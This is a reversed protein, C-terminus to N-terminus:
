CYYEKYWEAFKRLGERIGISPKFGYDEELGKRGEDEWCVAQKYLLSYPLSRSRFTRLTSDRKNEGIICIEQMGTM